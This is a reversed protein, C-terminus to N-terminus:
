GITCIPAVILGGEPPNITEPEPRPSNGRVTFFRQDGIRDRAYRRMTAM